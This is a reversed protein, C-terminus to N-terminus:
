DERTGRANASPTNCVPATLSIDSASIQRDPTELMNKIWRHLSTHDAVFTCEANHQSCLSIAQERESTSTGFMVPRVGASVAAQIDNLSDGVLLVRQSPSIFHEALPALVAEAMPKSPGPPVYGHVHLKSAIEPSFLKNVEEEVLEQHGNSVIFVPIDRELLMSITEDAMAFFKAPVVRRVTRELAMDGWPASFNPLRTVAGAIESSQPRLHQQRIGDGLRLLTRMGRDALTYDWDFIVAEPFTSKSPNLQDAM